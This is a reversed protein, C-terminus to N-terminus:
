RYLISKYSGITASTNIPSINHLTANSGILKHFYEFMTIQINTRKALIQPKHVTSIGKASQIAIQPGIISIIYRLLVSASPGGLRIGYPLTFQGIECSNVMSNSTEDSSYPIYTLLVLILVPSNLEEELPEPAPLLGIPSIM